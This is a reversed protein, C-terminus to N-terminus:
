YRPQSNLERSRKRRRVTTKRARAKRKARGALQSGSVPDILSMM